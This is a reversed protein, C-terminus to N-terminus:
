IRGIRWIRKLEGLERLRPSPKVMTPTTVTVPQPSVQFWDTISFLTLGIIFTIFAFALRIISPKM